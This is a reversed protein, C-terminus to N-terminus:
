ELHMSGNWLGKLIKWQVMIRISQETIRLPMLADSVGKKGKVGIPHIPMLWIIDTGLAQIRELDAQLARFTGEETHNRVYVSYIIQNRLKTSTEKAM